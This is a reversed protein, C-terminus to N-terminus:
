FAQRTVSVIEVVRMMKEWRLSVGDMCMYAHKTRPYM